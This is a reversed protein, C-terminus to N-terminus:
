EQGGPEIDDPLDELEQARRTFEKLVRISGNASFGATRLRRYASALNKDERLFERLDKSRFKRSLYQRILDAEDVESYVQRVAQEATKSAVRRVRLDRIVRSAGHARSELRSAAFSEAFKRDNLLSYERLKNMVEALAEPTRAKSKLKQQLDAASYPKRDLCRLAYEWLEDGALKKIKRPPPM